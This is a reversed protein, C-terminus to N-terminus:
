AVKRRRRAVGLGLIGLGLLALAGPEPLNFAAVTGGAYLLGTPDAPSQSNSVGEQFLDIEITYTTNASLFFMEVFAQEGPQCGIVGDACTAQSLNALPGIRLRGDAIGDNFGNAGAGSDDIDAGSIFIEATDDAYVWMGFHEQTSGTTFSFSHTAIAVGNGNAAPAGATSGTGDAVDMGTNGFSIWDAGETFTGNVNPDIWAGHENIQVSSHGSSGATCAGCGLVHSQDVTGISWTGDGANSDIAVSFNGIGPNTNLIPPGGNLPNGVFPLAMAATTSMAVVAAVTMAPLLKFTNM